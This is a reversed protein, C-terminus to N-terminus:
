SSMVSEVQPADSSPNPYCPRDNTSRRFASFRKPSASANQVTDRALTAVLVDSPMTENCCRQM